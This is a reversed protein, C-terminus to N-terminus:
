VNSSMFKQNCYKLLEELELQYNLKPRFGTDYLAECVYELDYSLEGGKTIEGCEIKPKVGNLEYTLNSVKEACEYITPSWNGGLNLLRDRLKDSPLTLLHYLAACVDSMPIFNRRQLGSGNLRLVPSSVAQRCLDNFLLHWCDVETQLPRGFANSMRLVVGEVCGESNAALVADEATRHSTAYPHVAKPLTKEDIRGFLPSGYVHATSMYIFRKMNTAQAAKLLRLTAMANFEHAAVPDAACAKANMGALHIVVDNNRCLELMSQDSNWDIVRTLMNPAFSDYKRRSISTVFVNERSLLYACLRGAVYGGGGTVLVKIKQV